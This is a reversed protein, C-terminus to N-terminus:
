PIAQDEWALTHLHRGGMMGVTHQAPHEMPQILLAPVPHGPVLALMHQVPPQPTPQAPAVTAEERPQAPGAVPTVWERTPLPVLLFLEVWPPEQTVVMLVTQVM